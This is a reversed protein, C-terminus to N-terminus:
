DMFIVEFECNLAPTIHDGQQPTYLYARRAGIATDRIVNSKIYSATPQEFLAITLLEGDFSWRGHQTFLELEGNINKGTELHLQQSTNFGLTAYGSPCL